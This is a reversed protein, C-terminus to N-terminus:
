TTSSSRTPRHMVEEGEIAVFRPRLRAAPSCSTHLKNIKLDDAKEPSISVVVSLADQNTMLVAGQYLKRHHERQSAADPFDSRPKPRLNVYLPYVSRAPQPRRAVARQKETALASALVSIHTSSAQVASPM